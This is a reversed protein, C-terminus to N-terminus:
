YSLRPITPAASISGAFSIGVCCGYTPCVGLSIGAVPRRGRTVQARLVTARSAGAPPRPPKAPGAVHVCHARNPSGALHHAITRAITRAITFGEWHGSTRLLGLLM